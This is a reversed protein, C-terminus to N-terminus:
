EGVWSLRGSPTMKWRGVLYQRGIYKFIKNAQQMSLYIVPGGDVLKAYGIGKCSYCYKSWKDGSGSGDCRQCPKQPLELDICALKWTKRPRLFELLKLARVEEDGNRRRANLYALATEDSPELKFNREADRLRADSM